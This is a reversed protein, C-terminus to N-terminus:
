VTEGAMGATRNGRAEEDTPGPQTTGAATFKPINFALFIILMLLPLVLQFVAPIFWLCVLLRPYNSM